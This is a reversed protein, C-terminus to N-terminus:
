IDRCSECIFIAEKKPLCDEHAWIIVCQLCQTWRKHSFDEKFSTICFVCKTNVNAPFDPFLEDDSDQLIITTDSDSSLSEVSTRCKKVRNILFARVNKVNNCKIQTNETKHHKKKM